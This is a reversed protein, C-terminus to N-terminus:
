KVCRKCPFFGKELAEEREMGITETIGSCNPNRHFKGSKKSVHVLDCPVIDINLMQGLYTVDQPFRTCHRNVEMNLVKNLRVYPNKYRLTNLLEIFETLGPNSNSHKGGFIESTRLENKPKFTYMRGGHAANNRYEMSIFLINMMLVRGSEESISLNSFDLLRKMVMNQENTKFLDIFNVITGFYLSKFLIWPPVTEYKSYYHFIPDKESTLQERLKDLISGLEYKPIRKRKNQYNRYQIYDNQNTGFSKAIVNSSQEKIYEELDLMAAMVANRINKDLEHLSAIQEFTVGSRYRKEGEDTKIVYPDRYSKILNSYGYCLLQSEAYEEDSIILGQKKLKELQQKVNSYPIEKMM